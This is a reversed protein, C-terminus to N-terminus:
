LALPLSQTGVRTRVSRLAKYPEISLPGTESSRTLKHALARMTHAGTHEGRRARSHEGQSRRLPHTISGRSCLRHAGVQSRTRRRASKSRSRGRQRVQPITNSRITRLASRRLESPSPIPRVTLAPLILPATARYDTFKRMCGSGTQLAWWGREGERSLSECLARLRARFSESM